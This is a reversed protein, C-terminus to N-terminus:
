PGLWRGSHMLERGELENAERWAQLGRATRSAAPTAVLLTEGGWLFSLPVLYPTGCNPDASAVWADVDQELRRLADQKRQQQPPTAPPGDNM